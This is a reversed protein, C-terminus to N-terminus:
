YQSKYSSSSTIKFFNNIIHYIKFIRTPRTPNLSNPIKHGLGLGSDFFKKYGLRVWGGLGLFWGLGGPRNQRTPQVDRILDFHKLNSWYSIGKRINNVYMYVSFEYVLTNNPFNPHIVLM